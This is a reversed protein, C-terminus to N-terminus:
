RTRRETADPLPRRMDTRLINAPVLADGSGSRKRSVGHRDAIRGVDVGQGRLAHVHAYRQRVSAARAGEPLVVHPRMRPPGPTAGASAAPSSRHAAVGKEVAECLNKRVHWRDAAQVAGPAAARAAAAAYSDARDRWIVAGAPTM